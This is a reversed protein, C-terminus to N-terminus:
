NTASDPVWTYANKDYAGKEFVKLNIEINYDLKIEIRIKREIIKGKYSSSVFDFHSIGLNPGRM